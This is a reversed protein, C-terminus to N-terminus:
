AMAVQKLLTMASQKLEDGSGFFARDVRHDISKAQAKHDVYETVANLLGWATGQSGALQAGHGHGRFLALIEAEGKPARTAKDDGAQMATTNGSIRALVAAADAVELKAEEAAVETPRLLKRVIAAADRDSIRQAALRRADELYAAFSDKVLGMRQQMQAVNFKSRHTIKAAAKEGTAMTFTNNCVVRIATFRGETASSGDCSSTLLVYAGIRDKGVVAGEAVKALAWFKKGGFLVGATCLEYGQSRVLNDFFEIVQAPQVIRYGDSVIGLPQKTDERFLVHQDTIVHLSDASVGIGDAFRIRSRKIKWEMHAAKVMQEVTCGAPLQQGLHHWPTEGVFAMETTGNISVLQHCDITTTTTLGALTFNM